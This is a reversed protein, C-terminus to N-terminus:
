AKPSKIFLSGLWAGLVGIIFLVYFEWTVYKTAACAMAFGGFFAVITFIYRLWAPICKCGSEDPLKDLMKAGMSAKKLPDM